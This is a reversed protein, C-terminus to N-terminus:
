CPTTVKKKKKKDKDKRDKGWNQHLAYGARTGQLAQACAHKNADDLVQGSQIIEELTKYTVSHMLTSSPCVMCTMVLEMIGDNNIRAEFPMDLHCGITPLFHRAIQNSGNITACLQDNFLDVQQVGPESWSWDQSAQKNIKKLTAHSIYPIAALVSARWKKEEDDVKAENEADKHLGASVFCVKAVTPSKYGFEPDILQQELCLNYAVKHIAQLQANFAIAYPQMKKCGDCKTGKKDKDKPGKTCTDGLTQQLQKETTLFAYKSDVNTNVGGSQTKALTKTQKTGSILGSDNRTRYVVRGTQDVTSAARNVVQYYPNDLPDNAVNVFAGGCLRSMQAEQDVVTQLTGIYSGHHHPRCRGCIQLINEKGVVVVTTIYAGFAGEISVLTDCAEYLKCAGSHLDNVGAKWELPLKTSKCDFPLVVGNHGAPVPHAKEYEITLLNCDLDVSIEPVETPMAFAASKEERDVKSRAAKKDWWCSGCVGAEFVVNAAELEIVCSTCFTATMGTKKKYKCEPVTCVISRKGGRSMLKGCLMCDRAASLARLNAHVYGLCARSERDNAAAKTATLVQTGLKCECTRKSSGCLACRSEWWRAAAVAHQVSKDVFGGKNKKKKKAM